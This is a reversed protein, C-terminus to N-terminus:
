VDDEMSEKTFKADWADGCDECHYHRMDSMTDEASDTDECACETSGVERVNKSECKPCFM